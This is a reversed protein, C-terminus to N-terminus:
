FSSFFADPYSEHRRRREDGRVGTEGRAAESGNEADDKARSRRRRYRELISFASRVDHISSM